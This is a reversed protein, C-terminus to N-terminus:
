AISLAASLTTRAGSTISHHAPVSVSSALARPLTVSKTPADSPDVSKGARWASWTLAATAAGAAGLAGWMSISSDVAAMAHFPTATPTLRGFGRPLLATIGQPHGGCNSAKWPTSKSLHIQDNQLRQQRRSPQEKLALFGACYEQVPSKVTESHKTQPKFRRLLISESYRNQQVMLLSCSIM